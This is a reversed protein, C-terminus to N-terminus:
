YGDAFAARYAVVVDVGLQEVERGRRPIGVLSDAAGSCHFRDDEEAQYRAEARGEWDLRKELRGALSAPELSALKEDREHHERNVLL